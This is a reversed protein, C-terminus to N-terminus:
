ESRDDGLYGEDWAEDGYPGTVDFGEEIKILGKMFGFGPHESVRAAGIKDQHKEASEAEVPNIRALIEAAPVDLATAIKAVESITMKREGNLTRSLSSPDMGVRGAMKRLSFGKGKYKEAFWQKDVGAM